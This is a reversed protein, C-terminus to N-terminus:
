LRGFRNFHFTYSPWGMASPLHIHKCQWTTTGLQGADGDGWVFCDGGAGMAMCHSSGVVASLIEEGVLDKVLQPELWNQLKPATAGKKEKKEVPPGIGTRGVGGGGWVYVDHDETVAYCMDQGAYIYNVGLGRLQPIVVFSLRPEFDGVGLQGKSNNGVVYVSGREEKDAEILFETDITEVYAFKNLQEDAISTRLRELLELRTGKTELDRAELHNRLERRSLNEVGINNIYDANGWEIIKATGQARRAQKIQRLVDLASM